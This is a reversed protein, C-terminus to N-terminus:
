ARLYADVIESNDVLEARSGTLAVTGTRFVYSRDALRVTALAMQEVLMVSIGRTRLNAITAMVSDVVMPALGLSPEDLLLLRPRCMLARAISLQQQEGGSLHGGLAAYRRTLTPFLTLLEDVDRKVASRDNRVTSGLRLNESVTLSRFIQRGEPVLAIGMRVIQEPSKGLLSKGQFDIRGSSAGWQGTIASLLSSKGAGNPGVVGVIEGEDVRLSVGKLAEIGGYDVRLDSVELMSTPGNM